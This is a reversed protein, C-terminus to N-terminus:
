RAKPSIELWTVSCLGLGTLSMRYKASGKGQRQQQGRLQARVRTASHGLVVVAMHTRNEVM